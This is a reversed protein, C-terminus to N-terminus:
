KEGLFKIQNNAIIDTFERVSIQLIEALKAALLPLNQPLTEADTEFNQYPGDTELLIKNLDLNKLIELPNKKRLFSFNIGLYFGHKQVIQGWEGSGTFSHFITRNPLESFMQEFQANAKVAHLILPRQYKGALRIHEKLVATQTDTDPNKIRDIGCEGVFAQPYKLLMKELECNWNEGVQNFYWPHIGFAPIIQEYKDALYAIRKWDEPHSSPNIFKTVGLKIASNIVSEASHAKYDQLHIHTDTYQM